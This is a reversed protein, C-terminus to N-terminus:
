AFTGSAFRLAISLRSAFGHDILRQAEHGIGASWGPRSCKAGGTANTRCGTLRDM